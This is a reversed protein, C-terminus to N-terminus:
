RQILHSCNSYINIYTAYAYKGYKYNLKYINIDINTNNLYMKTKYLIKKLYFALFFALFYTKM